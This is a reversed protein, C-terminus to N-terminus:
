SFCTLLKEVEDASTLHVRVVHNGSEQLALRDGEAQARILQAFDYDKGPVHLRVDSEITLSIFLGKKPGGKHFQGTSHLFRPGWGFAVPLQFTQELLHRLSAASRDRIPDLFACIALYERGQLHTAIEGKLDEM